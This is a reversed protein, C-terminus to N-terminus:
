VSFLEKVEGVLQGALPTWRMIGCGEEAMAYQIAFFHGPQGNSAGLPGICWKNTFPRGDKRYNVAQGRFLQNNTLKSRINDLVRRDTEPGQLIRPTKGIVEEASYGTMETFAANVYVIAPGPNDLQADTIIISDRASEIAAILLETSIESNGRSCNASLFEQQITQNTLISAM